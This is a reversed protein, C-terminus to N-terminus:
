KWKVGTESPPLTRQGTLAWNVLKQAYDGAPTMDENFAKGNEIFWKVPKGYVEAFIENDAKDFAVYQHTVGYWQDKIAVLKPYTFYTGAVGLVVTLFMKKFFGKVFFGGVGSLITGVWTKPKETEQPVKCDESLVSRIIDEIQRCQTDSFKYEQEYMSGSQINTLIPQGIEKATEMLKEVHREAELYSM